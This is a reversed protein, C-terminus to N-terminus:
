AHMKRFTSGASIKYRLNASTGRRRKRRKSRLSISQITYLSDASKKNRDQTFKNWSFYIYVVNGICAFKIYTFDIQKLGIIVEYRM